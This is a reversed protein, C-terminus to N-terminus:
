CSAVPHLHHTRGALRRDGDVITPRSGTPGRTRQIVIPKDPSGQLGKIRVILDDATRSFIGPTPAVFRAM